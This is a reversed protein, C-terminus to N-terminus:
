GAGKAPEGPFNRREARSVGGSADLDVGAPDVHRSDRCTWCSPPRGLLGAVQRHAPLKGTTAKEDTVPVGLEGADEVLDEACFSYPDDSRGDSGRPGIGKGLSEDTSDAPLAEVPHQDKVPALELDHGTLGDVVVVCMAGVAADTEGYWDGGVGRADKSEGSAHFASVDKPTQDVLIVLRGRLGSPEQCGVQADGHGTMRCPSPAFLSWVHNSQRGRLSRGRDNGRAATLRGSV